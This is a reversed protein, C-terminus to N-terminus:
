CGAPKNIRKEIEIIVEEVKDVSVYDYHDPVSLAPGHLSIVPTGAKLALAIESVTGAGGSMAVIVHPTRANISNRADSMGTYIPIDVYENPYGELPRSRDNPLIGIVLGGALHAGESAARMVGPGGGTVLVYGRQAVAEGLLRAETMVTQDGRSGGMIGIVVPKHPINM